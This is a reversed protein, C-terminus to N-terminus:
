QVKGSFIINDGNSYTAEGHHEWFEKNGNTYRDGSASMANHLKVKKKNPLTVLVTNDRNNFSAILTEGKESIYVASNSDDAFAAVAFITTAIFIIIKKM